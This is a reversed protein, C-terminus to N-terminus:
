QAAEVLSCRFRRTGTDIILGSVKSQEERSSLTATRPVYANQSELPADTLTPCRQLRMSNPAGSGINKRGTSPSNLGCSPRFFRGSNGPKQATKVIRMGRQESCIQQWFGELDEYQSAHCVRCELDLWSLYQSSVEAPIHVLNGCICAKPLTEESPGAM